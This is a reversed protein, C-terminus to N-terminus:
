VRRKKKPRCGNHPIPTTDSISVVNLGGTKLAKIAPLTLISEGIGWLQVVLIGRLKVDRKPFLKSVLGFVVCLPVGLYKDIIKILRVGM